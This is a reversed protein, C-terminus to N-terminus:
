YIFTPKELQFVWVFSAKPIYEIAWYIFITIELKFVRSFHLVRLANWKGMSSRIKKVINELQFVKYIFIQLANLEGISSLLAKLNSCRFLDFKQIANLQGICSPIEILNSCIFSKSHM